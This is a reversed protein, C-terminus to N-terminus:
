SWPPSATPAAVADVSVRHDLQQCDHGKAGRRRQRRPKARDWDEVEAPPAELQSGASQPRAAPTM